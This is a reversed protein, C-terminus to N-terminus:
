LVIELGDCAIEIGAQEVQTRERSGPMLIPNTNNIHTYIKRSAASSRLLELSGDGIPLHNMERATRAGPRIPSLEDNHWFTGDFLVAQSSNVADSLEDTIEGVAPAILATAGSREDRLQFATSKRLEIGRFAVGSGPSIFSQSSSRKLRDLKSAAFTQWDIECFPNLLSDIWTLSTRTEDNAYM